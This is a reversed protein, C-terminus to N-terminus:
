SSELSEDIFIEDGVISSQQPPQYPVLILSQNGVGIQVYGNQQLQLLMNNIIFDRAEIQKGVVFGTIAPSIVFAYVVMISLIIVLLVLSAIIITNRDRKM